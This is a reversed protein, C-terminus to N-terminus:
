GYNPHACHCCRMALNWRLATSLMSAHPVLTKLSVGSIDHRNLLLCPRALELHIPQLVNAYITSGFRSKPQSNHSSLYIQNCDANCYTVSAQLAIQCFWSTQRQKCAVAQLSAYRQEERYAQAEAAIQANHARSEQMTKGRCCLMYVDAPTFKM